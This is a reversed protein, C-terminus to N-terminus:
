TDPVAEGESDGEAVDLDDSSESEEEMEDCPCWALEDDHWHISM